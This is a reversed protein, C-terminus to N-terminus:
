NWVDCIFPQDDMEVLREVQTTVEPALTVRDRSVTNCMGKGDFMAPHGHVKIVRYPGEKKRALKRSPVETASETAIKKWVPARNVYVWDVVRFTPYHKVGRNFHRAYVKQPVEVASDTWQRKRLKREIVKM